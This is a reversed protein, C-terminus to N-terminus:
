MSVIKKLSKARRGGDTTAGRTASPSVLSVPGLSTARHQPWWSDSEPVTTSADSLQIGFPRSSSGGRGGGDNHCFCMNSQLLTVLDNLVLAEVKLKVSYVLPKYTTQILFHNTYETAMLTIDLVVVLIFLAILDRFLTRVKRGKIVEMHKLAASAEYVYLGSIISEQTSFAALQIKEFVNFTNVVPNGDTLKMANTTIFLVSTPLQLTICVFAIMAVVCRLKRPEGVVLHLRSYLVVSQGTVMLWWGLVVLVAMPANPALSFYRLVSAISHLPIGSNAALMSWFYLSHRRRFTRLIFIYIEISNYCAIALFGAIVMAIPLSVVDLVPGTEGAM